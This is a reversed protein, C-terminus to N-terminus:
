RYFYPVGNDLYYPCNPDVCLWGYHSGRNYRIMMGSTATHDSLNTILINFKWYDPSTKDLNRVYHQPAENAYPCKMHYFHFDSSRVWPFVNQIAAIDIADDTCEHIKYGPLNGEVGSATGYRDSWTVECKATPKRPM